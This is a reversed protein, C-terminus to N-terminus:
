GSGNIREGSRYHPDGAVSVRKPRINFRECIEKIAADNMLKRDAYLVFHDAPADFVIRGRPWDEYEYDCAVARVTPELARSRRWNGWIEYHGPGYTRCDGYPEAESLPCSAALLRTGTATLIMWFIGVHPEDSPKNRGIKDSTDPM